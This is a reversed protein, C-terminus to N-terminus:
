TNTPPLGTRGERIFVTVPQHLGMRVVLDRFRADTRLEDWLPDVNLFVLWFGRQDYASELHAFADDKRGLSAYILAGFYPSVYRGDTSTLREVVELAERHKGAMGYAVGLTTLMLPHGASVLPSTDADRIVSEHAGTKLRAQSRIFHAWIFDPDMELARQIQEIAQGYQRQFYHGWGIASNHILSLPDLDYARRVESMADELRGTVVLYELYWHHTASDSDNLELARTFEQDAALWDWDYLMTTFALSKHAEALTDDIALAKHAAAQAKPFADSPPLSGYWPLLNYCDAIGAYALAYTPDAELAQEFHDIAWRL